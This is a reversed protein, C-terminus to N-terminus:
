LSKIPKALWFVNGVGEEGLNMLGVKSFICMM